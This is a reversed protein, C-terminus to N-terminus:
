EEWEVPVLGCRCNYDDIEPPLANIPFIQGDLLKHTKRVRVDHSTVWKVKSVGAAHFTALTTAKNLRALQDRAFFRAMHSTRKELEESIEKIELKETKGTVYDNIIEIFKHKILTETGHIRAMANKLYLKEIQELNKKYLKDKDISFAQIILQMRPSADKFLKKEYDKRNKLILDALRHEMELDPIEEQEWEAQLNYAATGLLAKYEANNFAQMMDDAESDVVLHAPIIGSTKLKEKFGTMIKLILKKYYAKLLKTVSNEISFLPRPIGQRAM